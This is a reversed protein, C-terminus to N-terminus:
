DDNYFEMWAWEKAAKQEPTDEPMESIRKSQFYVVIGYLIVLLVGLAEM